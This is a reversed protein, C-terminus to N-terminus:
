LVQQIDADRDLQDRIRLRHRSPSKGREERMRAWEEYSPVSTPDVKDPNGRDKRHVKPLRATAQKQASTPRSQPSTELPVFLSSQMNRQALQEYQQLEDEDVEEQIVDVPKPKVFRPKDPPPTCPMLDLPDPGDLIPVMAASDLASQWTVKSRHVRQPRACPELAANSSRATWAEQTPTTGDLGFNLHTVTPTCLLRPTAANREMTGPRSMRELHEVIGVTAPRSSLDTSSTATNVTHPNELFKTFFAFRVKGDRISLKGVGFFILSLGRPSPERIQGDLATMIESFCAEVDDRNHDTARAIDSFNLSVIPCSSSTPKTTAKLGHKRIFQESLQFIPTRDDVVSLAFTGLGNVNVGKGETIAKAIYQSVGFWINAVGEETLHPITSLSSTRAQDLLRQTSHLALRNDRPLTDM